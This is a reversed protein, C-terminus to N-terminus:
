RSRRREPSPVSRQYLQGVQMGVAPLQDAIEHIRAVHDDDATVTIIDAM